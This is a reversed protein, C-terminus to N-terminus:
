PRVSEAPPEIMQIRETPPVQMGLKSAAVTEIRTHMAWTSQELQLQTWEEDLQRAGRQEQELEVFLTRARHQGTVTGLACGVLVVLLVLNLRIM